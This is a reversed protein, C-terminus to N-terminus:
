AAEKAAVVAFLEGFQAVFEESCEFDGLEGWWVGWSNIGYFVRRGDAQTYYGVLVMCHGGGNQDHQDQAGIVGSVYELVPTAVWTGFVVPHGADLALCVERIRQRGASIIQHPQPILHEASRVLEELTTEDNVNSPVCDSEAEYTEGTAPDTATMREASALKMGWEAAFVIASLVETGVDQLRRTNPWGALKRDIERAGAYMTRASGFIARGLDDLGFPPAGVLAFAICIAMVVGHGVCSGCYNQDRRPPAVRRLDAFGHPEAATNVVAGIMRRAVRGSDPTWGFSRPAV